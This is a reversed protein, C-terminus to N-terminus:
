PAPAGSDTVPVAGFYASMLQEAAAPDMLTAMSWVLLAGLLLTVAIWIVSLRGLFRLERVTAPDGDHTLAAWGLRVRETPRPALVGGEIWNPAADTTGDRLTAVTQGTRHDQRLRLIAGGHRALLIDEGLSGAHLDSVPRTSYRRGQPTPTPRPSEPTRM